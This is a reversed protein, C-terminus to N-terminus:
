QPTTTKSIKNFRPILMVSVIFLGLTLGYWIGQVGWHLIFAFFYCAPLGIVWYAIMTVITPFKVDKIGRLVGLAVAQTGDWLQFAGAILLLSAAISVVEAEKNFFLPLYNRLLIFFLATFIMFGFVMFLAAFGAQRMNKTDNLGQYNGVRVSSAAAIGSAIMFTFAALSVAIQHAAQERPGIWGAMVVAVCFAGVEFLWQMGSPIGIDLIKKSLSLSLSIKEKWFEKFEKGYRLYIFMGGAMIVRSYFTAWASGMVGLEPFGWRGFILVYNLFINILNGGISIIMAMKTLSLGETFQKTAFFLSLPIFSLAIVDLFPIATEVVKKDQGFMSLTPALAILLLFLLVGAAMNVALSNKMLQRLMNTDKAGDASAALPTVGYSIGMGFVMILYFLSNALAVGAQEVTGLQGVMATDVIGVMIHGMNSLCVPYALLLTKKYHHRYQPSFM